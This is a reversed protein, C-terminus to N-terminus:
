IVSARYTSSAIDGSRPSGGTYKAQVGLYKAFRALQLSAPAVQLRARVANGASANLVHDIAAASTSTPDLTVLPDVNVQDESMVLRFSISTLTTAADFTAICVAELEDTGSLSVWNGLTYSSALQSGTLSLWSIPDSLIRGPM